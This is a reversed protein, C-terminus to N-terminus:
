CESKIYICTYTYMSKYINLCAELKPLESPELAKLLSTQPTTVLPDKCASTSNPYPHTNLSHGTWLNSWLRIHHKSVQVRDLSHWLSPAHATTSPPAFPFTYELLQCKFAQFGELFLPPNEGIYTPECSTMLFDAHSCLCIFCSNFLYLYSYSVLSIYPMWMYMCM